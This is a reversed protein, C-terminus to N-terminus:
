ISGVFCRVELGIVWGANEKFQHRIRNGATKRM